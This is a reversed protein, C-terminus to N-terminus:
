KVSMRLTLNQCQEEEKVLTNNGVKYKGPQKPRQGDITLKQAEGETLLKALPYIEYESDPESTKREPYNWIECLVWSGDDSCLLVLHDSVGLIKLRELFKDLYEDTIEPM